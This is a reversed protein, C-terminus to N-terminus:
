RSYKKMLAVRNNYLLADVDDHMKQIIEECKEISMCYNDRDKLEAYHVIQKCIRTLPNDFSNDEKRKVTFVKSKMYGGSCKSYEDSEYYAAAADFDDDPMRLMIMGVM